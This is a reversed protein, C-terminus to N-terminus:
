IENRHNSSVNLMENVYLKGKNSNKKNMDM